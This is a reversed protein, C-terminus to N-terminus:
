QVKTEYKWVIDQLSHKQAMFSMSSCHAGQKTSQVRRVGDVVQKQVCTSLVRSLRGMGPVQM